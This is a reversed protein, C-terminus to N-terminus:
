NISTEMEDLSALALASEHCDIIPHGPEDPFEVIYVHAIPYIHVITGISGVPVKEGIMANVGDSIVKVIDHETFM